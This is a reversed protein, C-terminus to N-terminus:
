KVKNLIEPIHKELGLAMLHVGDVQPKMQSILESAIAIGEDLPSDARGLREIYDPPINIGLKEKMFIAVQASKLLFVGILIKTKMGKTKAMFTELQKSDFMPQTQFFEAGVDIKKEMMAIQLDLPDAMPNVVAGLCFQPAGDLKKGVMDVGTELVRATKLLQVPDLDYVPKAEKHDGQQPHDGSLVLINEIGLTSASLLDSELAIRNRDRCTVQMIPECGQEKLLRCIALSGLRMVARQNDTVNFGDIRGKLMNAKELLFQINTGKPPFLEATIIFKKTKLVEKFSM